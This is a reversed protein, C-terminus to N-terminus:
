LYLGVNGLHSGFEAGITASRVGNKSGHIANGGAPGFNRGGSPRQCGTDAPNWRM